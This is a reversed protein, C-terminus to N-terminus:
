CMNFFFGGLFMLFLVQSSFSFQAFNVRKRISNVQLFRKHCKQLTMGNKNIKAFALRMLLFFVSYCRSILIECFDVRENIIAPLYHFFFM